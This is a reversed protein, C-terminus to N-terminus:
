KLEPWVAAAAVDLVVHGCYPDYGHAPNLDTVEDAQAFFQFDTPICALLSFADVGTQRVLM